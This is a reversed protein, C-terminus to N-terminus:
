FLRNINMFETRNRNTTQREIIEYQLYRHESIHKAGAPEELIDAMRSMAATGLETKPFCVSTLSPTILSAAYIDDMGVVALDEPIRIDCEQCAKVAGIAMQDNACFLGDAAIGKRLCEKMVNYGSETTYNGELIRSPDRVISHDELAQLYGTCRESGLFSKQPLGMYLIKNRHIQEILYSVADYAAQRNDFIVADIGSSLAFELTVVPIRTDKKQLTQLKQIYKRVSSSKLDSVSSALIIGDTWESVFSDVMQIEKEPDDYSEAIQLSYGRKEAVLHIGDLVDAFFSRSIRPIIVAIKRTQSNKLGRAVNNLSFNLENVAACVKEKLDSSVNQSGNLVRSVTSISVGAKAAVDKITAM